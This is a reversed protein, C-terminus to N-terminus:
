IQFVLRKQINREVGKLSAAECLDALTVSDFFEMLRRSAEKWVGRAICSRMMTCKKEGATAPDVCFVLVIKGQTARIVDGM